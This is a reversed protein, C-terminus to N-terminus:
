RKKVHIFVLINKIIERLKFLYYIYHPVISFFKHDLYQVADVDKYGLFSKRKKDYSNIMRHRAWWNSKSSFNNNRVLDYILCQGDFITLNRKDHKDKIQFSVGVGLNYKYIPKTTHRCVGEMVCIYGVMFLRDDITHIQKNFRLNNKRIVSVKYLNTWPMGLSQFKPCMLEDMLENRSFVRSTVPLFPPDAMGEHSYVYGAVSIDVGKQGEMGEILTQLADPLLEDDSDVFYLYQGRAMDIGTNRAEDVGGNKKHVVVIRNDKGAFDDCIEGSDDTSGDDVLILEYDRYGQDLISQIQPRLLRSTNYIPMVISIKM